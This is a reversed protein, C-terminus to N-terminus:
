KLRARATAQLALTVPPLNPTQPALEEALALAAAAVPPPAMTALEYCERVLERGLGVERWAPRPRHLLAAHDLNDLARQWRGARRECAAIRCREGARDFPTSLLLMRETRVDAEEAHDGLEGLHYALTGLFDTDREVCGASWEALLARVAEADGLQQARSLWCEISEDEPRRPMAREKAAMWEAVGAETFLPAGDDGHLLALVRGRAPEGGHGRVHALTAEVGAAVLHERDFGCSTDFNAHKARALLWVDEVRRARAVLWGLIELTEGLGQFPAVERWAIEQELAHRLLAEDSSRVDYQLAWALLLRDREHRDTEGEEGGAIPAPALLAWAARDERVKRLLERGPELLRNTWSM